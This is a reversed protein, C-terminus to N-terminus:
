KGEVVVYACNLIEDEKQCGNSMTKMIAVVEEFVAFLGAIVALSM